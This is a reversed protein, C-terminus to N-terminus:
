RHTDSSCCTDFRPLPDKVRMLELLATPDGMGGLILFLCLYTNFHLLFLVHVCRNGNSAFTDM